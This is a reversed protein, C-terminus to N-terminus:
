RHLTVTRQELTVVKKAGATSLTTVLVARVSSMHKLVRRGNVTARLKVSVTGASAATNSGRALLLAPPRRQHRKHRASHQVSSARAPIAGGQQYLDETVTGPQNIDVLTTWGSVLLKHITTRLLKLLSGGLAPAPPPPPSPAPPAPCAGVPRANESSYTFTAGGALPTQLSESAWVTQGIQLPALFNGAYTAGSLVTVQASGSGTQRRETHGYHDTHLELSYYGGEVPEGGSRVGSFSTSGACVTSDISPLGDYVVSGVINGVPSELNVVDGPLPVQSLWVGGESGSGRAVVLGGRVISIAVPASPHVSGSTSVIQYEPLTSEGEVISLQYAPAESHSNALAPTAQAALVGLALLAVRAARRFAPIATRGPNTPM